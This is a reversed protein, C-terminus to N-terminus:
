ANELVSQVWLYFGNHPSWYEATRWDQGYEMDLVPEDQANGAIGNMIGGIILGVYRSHPYPNRMGEGTMLCAAFPNAGMVWELQRYALHRYEPNGFLHAASGLVLAYCELHSTTGLWWSRLRVPLFYRYTMEGALPRYLEKTPSGFFVGFPVISYVSRSTMPLIYEDVHMKVADRWRPADSHKPFQSALALLALPPLASYVADTYPARPDTGSYFYGRILKQGGAFETNQRALLTAGISAAADAYEEAGTARHMETAALAWWSLERTNGERKNARWCRVAVDLCAQGYAPDSDKYAQQVMAQLATWMPQVIGGKSTNVFRDDDTGRVNDTWHNDSNDGNVGGAVDAWIRGDTDQMKLFYRNGWRVEELIPALGSGGLDWKEGLGRALHLLGFANMMTADMWKRLDGADHWGGTLDVYQGNDRRRADDLHCASHVNPVAVGCRQAKHYSVAKPLTRRWVDPRIFFPVSRETGVTAQCMMMQSRVESLDGVLCEGFDSAEKRLRGTARFPKASSSVDRVSFETPAAGGTLRFIITKRADPLFGLHNLAIAPTPPATLKEIREGESTQQQQASAIAPAVAGLSLCFDRRQM